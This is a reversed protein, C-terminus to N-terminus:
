PRGSAQREDGYAEVDDFGNLSQSNNGWDECDYYEENPM